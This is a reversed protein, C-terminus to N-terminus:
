GEAAQALNALTAEMELKAHDGDHVGMPRSVIKM